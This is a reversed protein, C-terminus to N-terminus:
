PPAPPTKPATLGGNQLLDVTLEEPADAGGLSPPRAFRARAQALIQQVMEGRPLEGEEKVHTLRYLAYLGLLASLVFYFDWGRLHLGALDGRVMPGSWELVIGVRRAAFFQAGLGGLVPALGGLASSILANVSLYPAAAGAPALNIAMSGSALTVGAGAVGMVVHVAVLYAAGLGTAGLQSAGIMAAICAIYTPAAVNLVSKSGFRDALVGWRKLAWINALQSVVTLGMVLTVGFGLQQLFFVTFFPQALNVAFQWSATFRILPRFRADRLPARLLEGLRAPPGPPMVPEPALALTSASLLQSVGALAFLGAFVLAGSAKDGDAVDLAVGALLGIVVKVAMGLRSRRAAFSNRIEDPVLDRTWASWACGAFASAGCYVAVAAVIGLRAERSADAFALAALAAPAFASVFSGIVAIRKRTRLREVLLVGPGQLLQAWFAIATLIGVQAPKAGLHLAFATIITGIMMADCASSFAVEVTLTRLGRQRDGEDIDPRPKLM